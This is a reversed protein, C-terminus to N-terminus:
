AHQDDELRRGAPSSLDQYAHMSKIGWRHAARLINLELVPIIYDIVKSERLDESSATHDVSLGILLM